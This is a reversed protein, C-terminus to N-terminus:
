EIALPLGDLMLDLAKSHIQRRKKPDSNHREIPRRPFINQLVFTMEMLMREPDHTIKRESNYLFNEELHGILIRAAKEINREQDEMGNFDLDAIRAVTEQRLEWPGRKEDM